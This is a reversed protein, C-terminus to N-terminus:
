PRNDTCSVKDQYGIDQTEQFFSFFFRVAAAVVGSAGENPIVREEAAGIALACAQPMRVIPAFNKVGYAGLNTVTFTGTEVKVLTASSVALLLATTSCYLQRPFINTYKTDHACSPSFISPPVPIGNSCRTAPSRTCKCVATIRLLCWRGDHLRAVVPTVKRRHITYLLM